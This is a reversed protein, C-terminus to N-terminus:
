RTDRDIVLSDIAGTNRDFRVVIRGEEFARSIRVFSEEPSEFVVTEARGIPDGLDRVRPWLHRSRLYSDKVAYVSQEIQGLAFVFDISSTAGGQLRLPLLKRVDADACTWRRGLSPVDLAADLEALYADWATAPSDHYLFGLKEFNHGSYIRRLDLWVEPGHGNAFLVFDTGMADRLLRSWRIGYERYVKLARESLWGRGKQFEPVGDRDYDLTQEGEPMFGLWPRPSFHDVHLGDLLGDDVLARAYRVVLSVDEVVLVSDLEITGPLTPDLWLPPNEGGEWIIAPTGAATVAYRPGLLDVGREFYLPGRASQIPDAPDEHYTHFITVRGVVLFDPDLERVRRITERGRPTGLRSLNWVAGDFTSAIEEVEEDSYRPSWEYDTNIRASHDILLVVEDDLGREVVPPSTECSVLFASVCALALIRRM